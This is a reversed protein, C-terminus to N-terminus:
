ENEMGDRTEQPIRGIQQANLLNECCNEVCYFDTKSSLCMHKDSTGSESDIM